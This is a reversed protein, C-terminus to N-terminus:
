EEPPNTILETLKNIISIPLKEVVADFKTLENGIGVRRFHSEAYALWSHPNSDWFDVLQPTSAQIFPTQENKEEKM